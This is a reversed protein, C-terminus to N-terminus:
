AQPYAIEDIVWRAGEKRWKVYTLTEGESGPPIFKTGGGRPWMKGEGIHDVFADLEDCRELYSCYWEGKKTLDKALESYPVAIRMQNLPNNAYFFRSRSFLSLFATVDKTMLAAILKRMSAELSANDAPTLSTGASNKEIPVVAILLTYQTVGSGGSPRSVSLMYNGSEPLTTSWTTGELRLRQPNSEFCHSATPLGIVKAEALEAQLCSMPFEKAGPSFANVTASGAPSSILRVLLEQGAQAGLEYEIEVSDRVKGKYTASTSGREFRVRLGEAKGGHQAPVSLTAGLLAILTLLPRLNM